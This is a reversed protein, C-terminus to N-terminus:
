SAEKCSSPKQMDKNTKSYETVKDCLPRVDTARSSVGGQKSLRSDLQSLYSDINTSLATIAKTALTQGLAQLAATDSASGSKGSTSSQSLVSKRFNSLQATFEKPFLSVKSVGDTIINLDVMMEAMMSGSTFDFIHQASNLLAVSSQVYAKIAAIDTSNQNLTIKLAQSRALLNNTLLLKGSNEAKNSYLLVSNFHVAEIIHALIFALLHQSPSTLTGPLPDCQYRVHSARLENSLLSAPVLPCLIEIAQNVARLTKVQYRPDDPNTHDGPVKPLYLPINKFYTSTVADSDLGDSTGLLDIDSAKISLLDGLASFPDSSANASIKKNMLSNFSSILSFGGQALYIMALIHRTQEHNEALGFAIEGHEAALDFQGRDYYIEALDQHSAYSEKAHTSVFVKNLSTQDSCHSSALGLTLCVLYVLSKKM